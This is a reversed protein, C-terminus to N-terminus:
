QLGHQLMNERLFINTDSVDLLYSPQAAFHNPAFGISRYRRYHQFVQFMLLIDSSIARQVIGPPRHTEHQNKKRFIEGIPLFLGHQEFM